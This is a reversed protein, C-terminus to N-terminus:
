LFNDSLLQLASLRLPALKREMRAALRLMLRKQLEQAQYLQQELEKHLTQLSEQTVPEAAAAAQGTGGQESMVNVAALPQAGVTGYTGLALAPVLGYALFNKKM